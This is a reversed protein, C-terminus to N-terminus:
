DIRQKKNSGIVQTVANRIDKLESNLEKVARKSGISKYFPKSTTQIGVGGKSYQFLENKEGPPNQLARLAEGDVMKQYIRELGEVTSGKKDKAELVHLYMKKGVFYARKSFIDKSDCGKVSFDSHFQGLSEGILPTGPYRENYLTELQPIIADNICMSDTDTYYIPSNLDSLCNMVRNMIRKSMSLVLSGAQVLNSSEDTEEVTFEVSEKGVNQFQKITVFNEELYNRCNEQTKYVNKEDMSRLITRGYSSNMGLKLLEQMGKNGKQKHRLRLDFWGQIVDGWNHNPEGDWYVGQLVSYEIQQFEIYDELTIRDVVCIIPEDGREVDFEGVYQLGEAEEELEELEKL